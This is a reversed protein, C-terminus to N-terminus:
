RAAQAAQVEVAAVMVAVSSAGPAPYAMRISCITPKRRHKPPYAKRRCIMVLCLICPLCLIFFLIVAGHAPLGFTQPDLGQCLILAPYVVCTGDYVGVYAGMGATGIAGCLIYLAQQPM